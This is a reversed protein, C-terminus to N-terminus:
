EGGGGTPWLWNDDPDFTSVGIFGDLVAKDPFTLYGPLFPGFLRGDPYYGKDRETM